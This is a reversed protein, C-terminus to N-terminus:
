RGTVFSFFDPFLSELSAILYLSGLVIQVLIVPLIVGGFINKLKKESQSEGKVTTFYTRQISLIEGAPLRLEGHWFKMTLFGFALEVDRAKYVKGNKTAVKYRM